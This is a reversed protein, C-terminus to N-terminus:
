HIRLFFFLLPGVSAATVVYWARSGYTGAIGSLPVALLVGLM